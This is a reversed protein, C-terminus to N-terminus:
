LPDCLEERHLNNRSSSSWGRCQRGNWVFFIHRNHWTKDLSPACVYNQTKQFACVSRSAFQDGHPVSPTPKRQIDLRARKRLLSSTQRTSSAYSHLPAAVKPNSSSAPWRM